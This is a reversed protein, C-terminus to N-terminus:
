GTLVAEVEVAPAPAETPSPSPTPSASPGFGKQSWTNDRVTFDVPTYGNGDTPAGCGAQIQWTGTPGNKFFDQTTTWGGNPGVTIPFDVREVNEDAAGPHSVAVVHAQTTDAPCPDIATITVNGTRAGNHPDVSFTMTTGANATLLPLAILPTALAAAALAAFVSRHM